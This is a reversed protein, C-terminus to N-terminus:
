RVQPDDMKYGRLDDKPFTMVVRGAEVGQVADFSLKKTSDVAGKTTKKSTEKDASQKAKALQQKRRERDAEDHMVKM